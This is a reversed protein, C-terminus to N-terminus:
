HSNRLKQKVLPSLSMNIPKSDWQDWIETTNLWYQTSSDVMQEPIQESSNKPESLHNTQIRKQDFKLEKKIKNKIKTVGLSETTRREM